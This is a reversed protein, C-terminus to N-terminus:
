NSRRLGDAVFWALTSSAASSETADPHVWCYEAGHTVLRVQSDAPLLRVSAGLGGLKANRDLDDFFVQQFKQMFSRNRNVFATAVNRCSSADDGSAVIMRPSVPAIGQIRDEVGLGALVFLGITAAAPILTVPSLKPNSIANM